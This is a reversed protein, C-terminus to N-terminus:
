FSSFKNTYKYNINLPLILYCSISSVDSCFLLEIIIDEYYALLTISMYAMIEEVWSLQVTGQTGSLRDM